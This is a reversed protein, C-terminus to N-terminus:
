TVLLALACYTLQQYILIPFLSLYGCRQFILFFPLFSSKFCFLAIVFYIYNIVTFTGHFNTFSVSILMYRFDDTFRVKGLFSSGGATNQVAFGLAAYALSIINEHDLDKIGSAKPAM